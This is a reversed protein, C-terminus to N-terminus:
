RPVDRKFQNWGQVMGDIIHYYEYYVEAELESDPNTHTSTFQANVYDGEGTTVALSFAYDTNWKYENGKEEEIETVWIKIMEVFEEPGVAVRGDYFRM